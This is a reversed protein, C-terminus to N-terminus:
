VNTQQSIIKKLELIDSVTYKKDLNVDAAAPNCILITGDTSGAAIIRKMMIIDAVTVKGDKNLDGKIFTVSGLKNIIRFPENKGPGCEYYYRVSYSDTDFTIINGDITGGTLNSVKSIDLNGPLKTIDIKYDSFEAEYIYLGSYLHGLLLNQSLDLYTLKNNGCSMTELVVNKSLDLTTLLNDYCYLTKLLSCGSIDLSSLKNKNCYITVLATNNNLDLSTLQNQECFLTNLLTNKSLDLSSLLNKSCSFNYLKPLNSVDISTLKNNSCFFEHISPNNSLTISTLQNNHCRLHTLCTLNSVDLSNIQNYNCFLERLQKNNSVNLETLQNNNFVLSILAPNNSIDLSAIRNDSAELYNLKTNERLNLEALQNDCCDLFSLAKNNSVDLETLQNEECYMYYLSKNNSVDLETLQNKQCYLYRLLTNNSIDLETLQNEKCNLEKLKIFYEVGALSKINKNAFSIKTVNDIEAISLVNDNDTDFARIEARFNNDPFTEENISINMRPPVGKTNKIVFSKEWDNGCDYKYTIMDSDSSFIIANGKIRGGNLRNVKSIDFGNPLSSSDVSYNDFAAEYLNDSCNLSKLKTNKSVDLSTLKNQSCDLTTLETFYEIGELSEVGKKPVDISTISSIEEKSLVDDINKDYDRVYARFIHDPFNVKNVVVEGEASVAAAACTMLSIVAAASAVYRLLRYATHKVSINRKM